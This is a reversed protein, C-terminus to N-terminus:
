NRLWFYFVMPLFWTGFFGGLYMVHKRLYTDCKELCLKKKNYERLKEDPIKSKGYTSLFWYILEEWTSLLKPPLDFFDTAAKGELSNIFLHMYTDNDNAEINHRANYFAVLHDNTSVINNGSFRPFHEKFKLLPHTLPTLNLPTSLHCPTANYDEKFQFLGYKKIVKTPNKTYQVLIHHNYLSGIVSSSSSQSYPLSGTGGFGGSSTMKHIIYSPFFSSSSSDSLTRRLSCQQVYLV